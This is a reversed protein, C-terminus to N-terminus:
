KKYLLLSFIFTAPKCKFPESNGGYYYLNWHWNFFNLNETKILLNHVMLQCRGLVFYLSCLLVYASTSSSSARGCLTLNFSYWKKWTQFYKQSYIIHPKTKATFLFLLLLHLFYISSIFLHYSLDIAYSSHILPVFHFSSSPSTFLIFSHYWYHGM